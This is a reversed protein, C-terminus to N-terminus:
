SGRPSLARAIAVFEDALRQYEPDERSVEALRSALVSLRNELLLRELREDEILDNGAADDVARVVADAAAVSAGGVPTNTDRCGGRGARGGRDGRDRRDPRARLYYEYGGLYLQATGEELALIKNCVRSLLYRDHSVLVLTGDYNELAQEVRERSPIDLYNTPEDLLLLNAPSLLMKLLALRAKEGASLSGVRKRVADGSFLFCGLMLRVHERDGGASLAEELVTREDHLGALEQDFYAVRASPSIWMAGESVDERGAIIRLLTTKGAGNPGVLGVRDGRTVAFSVGSLVRRGEYSRAVDRAVVLRHGSKGESTLQLQIAPDARPREVQEAQLRELRRITAKARRALKEARHRYFVDAARIETNKGADRHAQRFWEMQRAVMEQLKRSQKEQELYVRMQSEFREDAAKRYATYNGPFSEVGEPRFTIIRSVARDLFYRDHSVVVVTGMFGQVYRELWRLGEEDLHNTPEDLLLCEAEELWLRALALRTKEGGSLTDVPQELGNKALDFRGLAELVRGDAAIAEPAVLTRDVAEGGAYVSGDYPGRGGRRGLGRALESAITTGPAFDMDQALYGARVGERFFVVRGSDPELLGAIIKLATTKGAGNAGVIAVKERQAVTFSMDKLVDRPGYSKGVHELAFLPVSMGGLSAIGPSGPAVPALQM